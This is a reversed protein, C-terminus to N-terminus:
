RTITTIISVVFAFFSAISLGLQLDRQATPNTKLTKLKINNAGVYVVDNQQLQFAPSQFLTGTRLDVPYSKRIGNEERIVLVDERKGADTLDGATSIADIITVRDTTYSQVGPSKVEGLVSIKFQLFRVLVSPDKVYPLLRQELADHLQTRTLGAARVNGIIPIEINGNMGVLYGNAGAAGINPLNFLAAQDQNLGKSFVYISLLDNPQILPEKLQVTGLSDLGRQFYLFDKNIRKSSSCSVMLIGLLIFSCLTILSTQTNKM